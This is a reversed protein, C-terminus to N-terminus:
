CNDTGPPPASSMKLGKIFVPPWRPELRSILLTDIPSSDGGGSASFTCVGLHNAYWAKGINNMNFSDNGASVLEYLGLRGITAQLNGSTRNITITINGYGFHGYSGVYDSIDRSLPASHEFTIAEKFTIDDIAFDPDLYDKYSDPDDNEQCVYSVNLWPTEGLLTDIVYMAVYQRHWPTPYYNFSLFVGM